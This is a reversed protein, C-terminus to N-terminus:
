FPIKPKIFELENYDFNLVDYIFFDKKMTNYLLKWELRKTSLIESVVKEIKNNDKSEKKLTNRIEQRYQILYPSYENINGSATYLEFKILKTYYKSLEKAYKQVVYFENNDIKDSIIGMVLAHYFNNWQADIPLAAERVEDKFSTDNYTEEDLPHVQTNKDEKEYQKDNFSDIYRLAEEENVKVTDSILDYEYPQYDPDPGQYKTFYNEYEYYFYKLIEISDLYVVDEIDTNIEINYHTMIRELVKNKRYIVPTTVKKMDNIMSQLKNLIESEFLRKRKNIYEIKSELIKLGSIFTPRLTNIKNTIEDNISYIGVYRYKIRTKLQSYIRRAYKASCQFEQAIKNVVVDESIEQFFNTIEDLSYSDIISKLSNKYEFKKNISILNDVESYALQYTKLDNEATDCHYILGSGNKLVGIDLDSDKSFSLGMPKGFIIKGEEDLRAKEIFASCYQKTFSNLSRVLSRKDRVTTRSYRRFTNRNLNM